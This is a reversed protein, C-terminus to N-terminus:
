PLLSQERALDIVPEPRRRRLLEVPPHGGLRESPQLLWYAAGVPSLALEHLVDDLGPVVGGPSDSDFQWRPYRWQAGVRLALLRGARRLRELAQRSRGILRAADAVGICERLIAERTAQAEMEAWALSEAAKATDLPEDVAALPDLAPEEPLAELARKVGRSVASRRETPVGADVLHLLERVLAMEDRSLLRAARVMTELREPSIGFRASAERLFVTHSASM